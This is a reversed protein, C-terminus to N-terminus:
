RSGAHVSPTGDSQQTRQGTRPIILCWFFVLAFVLETVFLSMSIWVFLTRRWKWIVRKLFPLESELLLSAEYIEPIGAGDRFEARQEIVVKVCVTSGVDKESFGKLKLNLTQTESVYGSVLPAIKLFTQVLRIPETRFRLMCPERSTALVQGNESLFDVRVQFMGLNRNYESEPLTMSVSVETKHNPTNVRHTVPVYAEPSNKTYDFSLSEKIVLPEQSLCTILFGSVMFASVLMAFLVIGVHVAWLLGLALRRVAELVHKDDKLGSDCLEVVRSILYRRGRRMTRYPDSVFSLCIHILRPPLNIFTLMLSVQFEISKIVLTALFGLLSWDLTSTAEQLFDDGQHDTSTTEKLNEPKEGKMTNSGTQVPDKEVTVLSSLKDVEEM